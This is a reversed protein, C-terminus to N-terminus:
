AGRPSVACCSDAMSQAVACPSLAFRVVRCANTSPMRTATRANHPGTARPRQDAGTVARRAPRGKERPQVRRPFRPLARRGPNAKHDAGCSADGNVGGTARAAARPATSAAAGLPPSARCRGWRRSAQGICCAGHRRAAHRGRSSRGPRTARRCPRGTRRRRRLRARRGAQRSRPRPGAPGTRRRRSCSGARRRRRGAGCGPVEREEM